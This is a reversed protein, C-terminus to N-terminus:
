QNCLLNCGFLDVFAIKFIKVMEEFFITKITLGPYWAVNAFNCINLFM